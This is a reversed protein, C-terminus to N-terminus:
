AVKKSNTFMINWFMKREDMEKNLILLNFEWVKQMFPLYGNKKCRRISDTLQQRISRLESDTSDTFPKM